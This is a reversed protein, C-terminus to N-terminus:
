LFICCGRGFGAGSVILANGSVGASAIRPPSVIKIVFADFGGNVSELSNASPVPRFKGITEALYGKGAADVAIGSAFSTEGGVYTSFLIASGTPNLETTFTARDFPGAPKTSQLTYKRPFRDSLTTGTVYANGVEDVGIAAVTDIARSGLYSVYVFGSGAPDSKAVFGDTDPGVGAYLRAPNGAD